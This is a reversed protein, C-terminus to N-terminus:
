LLHIGNQTRKVHLGIGAAVRKQSYLLTEAQAPTNAPGVINGAYDADTITQTPYRKNREKTLKLGNDKREDISTRHVYDLSIIFLYPALTDWQLVAAVIDFYVIDGDPSHDKVKTNRYLMMIATGTEKPLGYVLLIQEMKGRYISGFAKAFDVFLITAQLKKQVYM